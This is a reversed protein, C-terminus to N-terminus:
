VLLRFIRALLLGLGRSGLEARGLFLAEVAEKLALCFGFVKEIASHILSACM